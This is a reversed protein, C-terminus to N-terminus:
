KSKGGYTGVVKIVRDDMKINIIFSRNFKREGKWCVFRCTRCNGLCDKRDIPRSM